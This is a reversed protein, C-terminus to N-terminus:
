QGFRTTAMSTNLLTLLHFGGTLLSLTCMHITKLYVATDYDYLTRHENSILVYM